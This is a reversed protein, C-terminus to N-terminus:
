DWEPPYCNFEVRRTRLKTPPDSMGELDVDIVSRFSVEDNNLCTTRANSRRNSGGGPRVRKEQKDVKKWWCAGIRFDCWVGQMMTEVFAHSPCGTSGSVVEWWGHVSLQTSGSSWHIDDSVTKYTCDGATDTRENGSASFTAGSGDPADESARVDSNYTSWGAERETPPADARAVGTLFVTAVLPALLLALSVKRTSTLTM